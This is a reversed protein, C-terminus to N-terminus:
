RHEGGEFQISSEASFRKYDEFDISYRVHQLGGRFGLTDDAVTKVPFWFKGDVPRYITTFHPFLNDGSERYIQPVPEGAVRVIQRHERSIWMMGDLLRQGDLVQRPKLRYVYCMEGDISELGKYAAEYNWLNDKDLVFPQVDRIDRFDEDTLRMFKLANVPGKVFQETREGGPTFLVDRTESYHGRPMGKKDLEFFQFTQRYTYHDLEQEFQSGQAAVQQILERPPPANQGPAAGAFAGLGLFLVLGARLERAGVRFRRRGVRASWTM